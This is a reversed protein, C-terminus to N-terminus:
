DRLRSTVPRILTHLAPKTLPVIVNKAGSPNTVPGRPWPVDANVGYRTALGVADAETASM